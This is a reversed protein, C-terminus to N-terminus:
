EEQKEVAEEIKREMDNVIQLKLANKETEKRSLKLEYQEKQDNLKKNIQLHVEQNVKSILEQYM